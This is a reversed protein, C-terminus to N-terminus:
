RKGSSKTTDQTVLSLIHGLAQAQGQLVRLVSEEQQTVLRTKVDELSM